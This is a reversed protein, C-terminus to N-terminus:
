CVLTRPISTNGIINIKGETKVYKLLIDLSLQYIM